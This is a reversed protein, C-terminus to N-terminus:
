RRYPLANHVRDPLTTWQRVLLNGTAKKYCFNVFSDCRFRARKVHWSKYFGKNWKFKWSYGWGGKTYIPSYTYVPRYNKQMWGSNLGQVGQWYSAKGYRAGKYKKNTMTSTPQHRITEDNNTVELVEDLSSDYLAVHDFKSFWWAGDSSDISRRVVDAMDKPPNYAMAIDTTMFILITIYLIKKM